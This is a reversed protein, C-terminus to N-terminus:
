AKRERKNWSCVNKQYFEILRNIIDDRRKRIAWSQRPREDAEHGQGNHSRGLFM